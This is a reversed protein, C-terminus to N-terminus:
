DWWERFHTHLTEWFNDWHLKEEELYKEQNEKPSDYLTIIKCGGEKTPKVKYYKDETHDYMNYEAIATNLTELRTDEPIMLSDNLSLM